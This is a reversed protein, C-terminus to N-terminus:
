RAKRRSRWVSVGAAIVALPIFVLSVLFLLRAQGRTLSLPKVPAKTPRTAILQEEETLYNVTNLFLDGNGALNFFANSAFDSDGFVILRGKPPNTGKKDSGEPGAGSTPPLPTLAVALTLPGKRDKSPDFSAEGRELRAKDFEAWSEPSTRVLPDLTYGTPPSAATELHRATPFFTIVRFKETIPHNGYTGAMTILFDGGFIRSVKDIVIDPHITIGFTSLWEKLGGDQFPELLVLLRGGSSLFKKLEEVEEAFLPKQPGAVVLCDSGEPIGKGALLNIEEVQYNEKELVGRAMSFGTKETDQIGKEGHGTLFLVKKTRKQLLRLLGQTIEEEEASSVNQIRGGSELILTGYHRVGYQRALAPQRDPDIFQYRIRPNEYAYTELLSQTKKKNPNGEQLFARIHVEEKIKKVVQKSQASLSHRRGETWDFRLPFRHVILTLGALIAVFILTLLTLFSREKWKITKVAAM